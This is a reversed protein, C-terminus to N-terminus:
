DVKRALVVLLTAFNYSIDALAKAQIAAITLTMVQVKFDETCDHFGIDTQGTVLQVMNDLQEITPM